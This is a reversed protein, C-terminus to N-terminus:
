ASGHLGLRVSRDRALRRREGGSRREWGEQDRGVRAMWLFSIISMERRLELRQARPSIPLSCPKERMSRNSEFPSTLWGGRWRGADAAPTQRTHQAQRHAQRHVVAM